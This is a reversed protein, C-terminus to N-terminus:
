RTPGDLLAAAVDVVAELSGRAFPGPMAYYRHADVVEYGGLAYASEDPLYGPVGDCYGLVITPGDHGARLRDAASLFPEGPLAIIRLAGCSIVSVRGVWSSAPSSPRERAWRLWRDLLASRGTGDAIERQWGEVQLAVTDDSEAAIDLTVGASAFGVPGADIPAPDVSSLAAALVGGVRGAEAFTRGAGGGVFSSEARHGTNVDGAAGTAFVCVSGPHQAEIRERLPAVFDGSILTNDGDLVVPHCPYSVLTAVRRGERDFGVAQVPPDIERELHRRNRAVGAGHAEAYVLTCPVRAAAASRVTDVISREVEVRLGPAEVGLREHSICPGAHTHTAHLVIETVIGDALLDDRVSACTREHLACCDVTVLAVTDIVLARVTLPDHVGTSGSSRAAFGSMPTGDPVDVAAVACGVPVASSM